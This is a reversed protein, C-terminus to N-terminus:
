QSLVCGGNGSIKSASGGTPLVGNTVDFYLENQEVCIVTIDAAVM